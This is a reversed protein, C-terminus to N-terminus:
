KKDKENKLKKYLNFNNCKKMQIFGKKNINCGLLCNDNKDFNNKNNNDDYSSNNIKTEDEKNENKFSFSFGKENINEIIKNFQIIQKSKPLFLFNEKTITLLKYNNKKNSIEKIKSINENIINELKNLQKSFYDINKTDNLCKSFDLLESCSYNELKKNDDDNNIQSFKHFINNLFYFLNDLCFKYNNNIKKIEENERKLYNLLDMNNENNNNENDNIYINKGKLPFSKKDHKYISLVHENNKLGIIQTFARQIKNKSNKYNLYKSSSSESKESLSYNLNIKNNRNFINKKKKHIKNKKENKNIKKEEFDDKDNDNKKSFLEDYKTIKNYLKYKRELNKGLLNLESFHNSNKELHKNLYYNKKYKKNNKNDTVKEFNHQNLNIINRWNLKIDRENENLINNLINICDENLNLNEKGNIKYNINYKYDNSNYHTRNINTYSSSHPLISSKDKYSNYIYNSSNSRFPVKQKCYLDQNLTSYKSDTKYIENNILTRGNYYNFINKGSYIDNKQCDIGYKFNLGNLLQNM